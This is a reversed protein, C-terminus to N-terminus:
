RPEEAFEKRWCGDGLDIIRATRRTEQVREGLTKGTLDFAKALNREAEEPYASEALHWRYRTTAAIAKTRYRARSTMGLEDWEAGDERALERAVAVRAATVAYPLCSRVAERARARYEDRTSRPTEDWLLVSPGRTALWLAEAIQEALESQDLAQLFDTM